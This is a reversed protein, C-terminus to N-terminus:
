GLWRCRGTRFGLQECIEHRNHGDLLVEGWVVLADRCGEVRLNEELQEKEAANLTRCLNAIEPEIRLEVM